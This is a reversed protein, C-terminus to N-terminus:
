KYKENFASTGIEKCEVVYEWVDDVFEWKNYLLASDELQGYDYNKDICRKAKAIKEQETM